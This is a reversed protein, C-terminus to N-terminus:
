EDDHDDEDDDYHSDGYDDSEIKEILTQPHSSLLFM